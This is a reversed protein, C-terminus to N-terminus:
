ARDGPLSEISEDLRHYDSAHETFLTLVTELGTPPDLSGAAISITQPRAASKWFLTGGCNSCFGYSVDDTAQWWRLARTDEIVLDDSAAAAAAMFHGSTRRCRDCHCNIVDRLQGEVRYRVRGCACGGTAGTKM